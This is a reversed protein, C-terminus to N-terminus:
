RGASTQDRIVGTAVMMNGASQTQRVPQGVARAVATTIFHNLSVGERDALEAADRHLAPGLRVVTKGSFEPEAIPEPIPDGDELMVELWSAMAEDLMAAAEAITDGQTMCGPFEVIRAFWAGGEDPVFERHYPLKKIQEIQEAISKSM